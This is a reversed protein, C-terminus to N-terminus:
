VKPTDEDSSPPAAQPPPPPAAGPDSESGSDEGKVEEAEDDIFRDLFFSM